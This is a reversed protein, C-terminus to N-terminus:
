YGLFLANCKYAAICSWLGSCHRYILATHIMRLVVFCHYTVELFGNVARVLVTACRVCTVMVMCNEKGHCEAVCVSRSTADWQM